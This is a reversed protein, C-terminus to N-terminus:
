KTSKLQHLQKELLKLKKDQAIVYLTLEEIKRLLTAQNDGLDIGDKEVDAVSPVDPLHQQKQIFKEVEPLSRLHYGPHFVYDSWGSQTVIVKKSYIYGNVALKGQPSTTGIGVNGTGLITMLETTGAEDSLFSFRAAPADLHLRFQYSQVGLGYCVPQGGSTGEWLAIKSNSLGGGFSLSFSPSSTGIGANGSSPFTNQAFAHVSLLTACAIVGHHLYKKM